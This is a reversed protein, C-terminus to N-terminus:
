AQEYRWREAESSDWATAPRWVGPRSTPQLPVTLYRGGFTPGIMRLTAAHGKKNRFFRPANDLVQLVERVSVQHQAMEAENWEDFELDDIQM